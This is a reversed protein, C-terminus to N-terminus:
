GVVKARGATNQLIDALIIDLPKEQHKDFDLTFRGSKGDLSYRIYALGYEKWKRQDVETIAGYPVKTGNPAIVGEADSSVSTRMGRLWFVLSCTGIVAFASGWIIQERYKAPGKFEAPATTSWGKERCIAEWQAPTKDRHAEFREDNRPYAVFGDYLFLFTFILTLIPFAGIKQKWRKNVRATAPM